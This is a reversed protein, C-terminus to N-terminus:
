SRRCKPFNLRIVTSAKAKRHRLLAASMGPNAAVTETASISITYQGAPIRALTVTFDTGNVDERFADARNGSGEVVLSPAEERHTFNGRVSVAGGCSTCIEDAAFAAPASFLM